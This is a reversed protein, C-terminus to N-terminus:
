IEALLTKATKKHHPKKGHKEQWKVRLEELSLEEPAEWPVEAVPPAEPKPKLLAARHPVYGEQGEVLWGKKMLDEVEFKPVDQWGGVPSFMMTM